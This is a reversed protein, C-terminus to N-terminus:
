LTKRFYVVRETEAFGWSEHAHHSAINGIEADSCLEVFGEAACDASIRDILLRGIGHQRHAPAIWIGELFPVPSQTSGNAYRRISVEAFGIGRGQGDIALYGRLVGNPLAAAIEEAHQEASGNPWLAHRLSAWEALDADDCRRISFSM